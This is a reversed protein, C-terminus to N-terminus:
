KLNNINKMDQASLNKTADYMADQAASDMKRDYSSRTDYSNYGSNYNDEACGTLLISLIGICILLIKKM